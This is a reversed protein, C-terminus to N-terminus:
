PFLHHTQAWQVTVTSQKLPALPDVNFCGPSCLYVLASTAAAEEKTEVCGSTSIDLSM